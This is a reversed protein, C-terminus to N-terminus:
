PTEDYDAGVWVLQEHEDFANGSFGVISKNMEIKVLRRKM